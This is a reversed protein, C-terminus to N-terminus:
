RTSLSDAQQEKKFDAEIKKKNRKINEKVSKPMYHKTGPKPCDWEEVSINQIFRVDNTKVEKTKENEVEAQQSAKASYSSASPRFSKHLKVTKVKPCPIRGGQCASCIIIVIAILRISM